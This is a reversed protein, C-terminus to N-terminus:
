SRSFAYFGRMLPNYAFLPCYRGEFNLDGRWGRPQSSGYSLAGVTWEDSGPCKSGSRMGSRSVRPATVLVGCTALGRMM